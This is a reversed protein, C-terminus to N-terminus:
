YYYYYGLFCNKYSKLYQYRTKLKLGNEPHKMRTGLDKITYVEANKQNNDNNKAPIIATKSRRTSRLPASSKKREIDTKKKEVKEQVITKRPQGGNTIVDM